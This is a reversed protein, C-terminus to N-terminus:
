TQYFAPLQHSHTRQASLWIHSQVVEEDRTDDDSSEVVFAARHKRSCVSLPEEECYDEMLILRSYPSDELTARSTRPIVVKNFGVRSNTSSLM